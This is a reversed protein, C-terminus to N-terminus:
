RLHCVLPIRALSLVVPAIAALSRPRYPSATRGDFTGGVLFPSLRHAETFVHVDELLVPNREGCIPHPAGLVCASPAKSAGRRNLDSSPLTETRGRAV